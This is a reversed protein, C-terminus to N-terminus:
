QGVKPKLPEGAKRKVVEADSVKEAGPIVQQEGTTTSEAKTGSPRPQQATYKEHRVASTARSRLHPHRM